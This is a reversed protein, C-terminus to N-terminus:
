KNEAGNKVPMIVSRGIGRKIGVMEGFRQDAHGFFNPGANEQLVHHFFFRSTVRCKIGRGNARMGLAKGSHGICVIARKQDERNECSVVVCVNRKERSVRGLHITQASINDKATEM